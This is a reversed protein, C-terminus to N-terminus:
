REPKGTKRNEPKGTKRDIKITKSAMYVNVFLKTNNADKSVTIGNPLM